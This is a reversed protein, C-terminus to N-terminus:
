SFASFRRHLSLGFNVHQTLTVLSGVCLLMHLQLMEIYTPFNGTGIYMARRKDHESKYASRLSAQSFAPVPVLGSIEYISQNTLNQRAESFQQEVNYNNEEQVDGRRERWRRPHRQRPDSKRM